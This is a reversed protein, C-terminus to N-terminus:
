RAYDDGVELRTIVGNLHTVRVQLGDHVIGPTNFGATVLSRAYKFCTDQVCFRESDKQHNRSYDAVLGEAVTGGQQARNKLDTYDNFTVAFVIMAWATALAAMILLVGTELTEQSDSKVRHYVAVGLVTAALAGAAPFWWNTYGATTVDFVTRYPM